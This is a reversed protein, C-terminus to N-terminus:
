QDVRRSRVYRELFGGLGLVCVTFIALYDFSLGNVAYGQHLSVRMLEIAQLIPNWMLVESIYQPFMDVSFFVGSVFFLIRMIMPVIKELVPIFVALSSIIMGLGLACLPILYLVGLALLWDGPRFVYGLLVSTAVIIVTVLLQTAFLVLVRALMVDFETVQPFTLLGKNGAVASMTKTIGDSFVAWVGFGLALFLAMSMGHPAHAHMFARLAWFVAISFVSQVLVWLYGLKSNGNITHVERLMLAAIVRCQVIFGSKLEENLTMGQEGVKRM